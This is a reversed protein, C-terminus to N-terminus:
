NRGQGLWLDAAPNHPDSPGIWVLYAGERRILEASELSRVCSEFEAATVSPRMVALLFAADVEQADRITEAVGIVAPIM